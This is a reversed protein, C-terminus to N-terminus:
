FSVNSKPRNFRIPMRHIGAPFRPLHIFRSSIEVCTEPTSELTWSKLGFVCLRVRTYQISCVQLLKLLIASKMAINEDLKIEDRLNDMFHNADLTSTDYTADDGALIESDLPNFM